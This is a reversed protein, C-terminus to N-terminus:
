RTQACAGTMLPGRTRSEPGWVSAQLGSGRGGGHARRWAGAPGAWGRRGRSRAGPVAGTDKAEGTASGRRAAGVGGFGHAALRRRTCAATHRRRRGRLLGARRRSLSSLRPAPSSGDRGVRACLFVFRQNSQLKKPALNNTTRSKKPIGTADRDSSTAEVATHRSLKELFARHARAHEPAIFSGAPRAAGGAAGSLCGLARWEVLNM